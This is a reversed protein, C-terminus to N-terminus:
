MRERTRTRSCRPSPPRRPLGWDEDNMHGGQNGRGVGVIGKAMVNWPTDVRWFAEVGNTAVNQWTLRSNNIPLPKNDQGLDQQFRTWGAVYRTGMEAAFGSGFATARPPAAATFSAAPEGREGLAYNLALKAAHM